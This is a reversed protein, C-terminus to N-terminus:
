TLRAALWSLSADRWWAQHARLWPSRSDREHASYEVFLGALAALFADLARAPVGASLPHSRWLTDADHGDGHASVLLGALDLWAAGRTLWKWDCVLVQGDATLLVNDDRLDFHTATDGDCLTTWESELAALGPLRAEWAPALPRSLAVPDGASRKRWFSMEDDYESVPAITGLSAPVPTLATALGTLAALVLELEDSQWPRQPSRGEVDDIGLVVWTGVHEAWRVRPAPVEVPLASVVEAEHVYSPHAVESLESSAAKVFLRSGDALVLRSAFGSTFGAGQSISQLVASGAREEILARVERPLAEWTPRSATAGFPVALPLRSM